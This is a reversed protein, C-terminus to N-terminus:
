PAAPRLESIDGVVEVGSASSASDFIPEDSDGHRRKLVVRVWADASESIRREMSGDMPAALTGEHNRRVLIEMKFVSDSVLLRLTPGQQELLDVRAGTYSAFRYETKGAYFISIFGNFHSGRWPVKALSFFLSASGVEADFTNSQIWIWSRPMSRGWDKEIYGRGDKFDIREEAASSRTLFGDVPHDLSAVGHYCEMAPVFSYPGMVGPSLPSRRPRVLPGYRLDGRVSGESDELDVHIGSLSFRNEGIRVGFPADQTSFDRSSFRFYRTSGDAGDIMQVFAHDGGPSRSIGPIFAVTRAGRNSPDASRSTHKFYWGEFYRNRKGFGQYLIPFFPRFLGIMLVLM